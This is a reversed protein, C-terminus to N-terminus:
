GVLQEAETVQGDAVVFERDVAGVAIGQVDEPLGDEAAVGTDVVRDVHDEVPVDVVVAGAQRQELVPLTVQPDVAGVGVEGAAEHGGAVLALDRGDTEATIGARAAGAAGVRTVAEGREARTLDAHRRVGDDVQFVDRVDGAGALELQGAGRRM